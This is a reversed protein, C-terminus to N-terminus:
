GHLLLWLVELSVRRSVKSNSSVVVWCECQQCRVFWRRVGRSQKAFSSIGDCPASGYPDTPAQGYSVAMGSSATCTSRSCWSATGCFESRRWMNDVLISQDTSLYLRRAWHRVLRRRVGYLREVFSPVADCPASRYPDTSSQEYPVLWGRSSNIAMLLYRVISPDGKRPYLIWGKPWHSSVKCIWSVRIRSLELKLKLLISYFFGGGM